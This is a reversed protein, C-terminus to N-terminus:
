HLNNTFEPVPLVAKIEGERLIKFPIDYIKRLKEETIKDPSVSDVIKGKNILLIVDSFMIAENPDHVTMIVGIKDKVALNKAVSLVKVKNKVDLHKTPEDLLLIKPNQM